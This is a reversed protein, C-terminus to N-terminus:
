EILSYATLHNLLEDKSLFMIMDLISLGIAQNYYGTRDYVKLDPKIFKVDLGKSKFYSADYLGRSGPPLVLGQADEAMAIDILRSVRDLADNGYSTSDEILVCHLELYSHIEKITTSALADITAYEKLLIRHVMEMGLHFNPAKKFAHEISSLMKKRWMQSDDILTQNIKKNPSAKVLPVGLWQAKGNILVKNRNIWGRMIFNVDNYLVFTDCAHMYMFYGIYPFFYPQM